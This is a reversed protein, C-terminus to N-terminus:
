EKEERRLKNEGFKIKINTSESACLALNLPSCFRRANALRSQSDAAVNTRHSKTIRAKKGTEM